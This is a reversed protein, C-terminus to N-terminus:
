AKTPTSRARSPPLLSFPPVKEPPIDALIDADLTSRMVGHVSGALSGVIACPLKLSELEGTVLLTVRLADDAM